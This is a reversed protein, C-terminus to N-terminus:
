TVQVIQENTLRGVNSHRIADIRAGDSLGMFLTERRLQGIAAQACEDALVLYPPIELTGAVIREINKQVTVPYFQEVLRLMESPGIYVVKQRVFQYATRRESKDFQQLWTALREIFRMGAHFDRYGDYKIRAMLKLWRFEERAEEDTWEMIQGLVKLGLDQNM